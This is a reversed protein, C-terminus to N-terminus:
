LQCDDFHPINTGRFGSQSRKTFGCALLGHTTPARACGAKQISSYNMHINTEGCEMCGFLRYGYEVHPYFVIWQREFRTLGGPPHTVSHRSLEFLLFVFWQDSDAAALPM